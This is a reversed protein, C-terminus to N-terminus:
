RRHGTPRTRRNLTPGPHALTDHLRRNLADAMEWTDCILLADKGDATDALYANLAHAAMAIPDGTHLRGKDRYWKIATRLRNGHASRLALSTDREEPDAMRWVEGLRQSWPLDACLQEFMGGRAKVPALQYADGVLVIKARGLVAFTLLKKLDPTGLMSAEDVVVLSSQAITLRDDAILYLAKAVTMGHDGAGEAMAEDVAKGTPALVLVEKRTRHAAARLAKLSHTKGAGAPAQLPQVLYPSAAINAIARQQDASLDDFDQRRLDLRVLTDSEDVMDLIQAEEAIIAEITFKEHGERHHAERPASIRLGVEDAIQEVLIRPDRPADIPLQAGILEVMDARTFTPTDILAAMEALHARAHASRPHARRAARAALHADRDLTLGRTDARWQAKLDTWSLSEPKAPRTAKQAAALQAATPEGNIITLNNRAWERLRTSRRSWAKIACPDVGAIEAMGTHPDIPSFEFGREAHLLHRLTAQYIIGAAKAEHHLSKSDISVLQGDRRPQRNPVIVHTHLHPDGCRSTEHQYAIAVLGPLRQLDKNGTIPNHVRTYGAHQQLYQMAAAVAKTHATALVKEAIDDTLARILSVSKPASFTLDFGHVSKDTFERGAAGNPARGNDLWIRATETDADGGDLASLSLGTTHRIATKDGVVLWSPVRTEGESYYEALGGGPPQQKNAANKARDATDNYYKISRSKLRSITLVAYGEIVHNISGGTASRTEPSSTAANSRSSLAQFSYQV